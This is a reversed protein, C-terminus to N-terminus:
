QNDKQPEDVKRPLERIREDQEAIHAKLLKLRIDSESPVDPPDLWRSGFLVALVVVAFGLLMPLPTQAWESMPRNELTAVDWGAVGAM